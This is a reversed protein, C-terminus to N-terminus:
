LWSLPMLHRSAQWRQALTGTWQDWEDLSIWHQQDVLKKQLFDRTRDGDLWHLHTDLMSAPFTLRSIWQGSQPHWITQCVQSLGELSTVHLEWVGTWPYPGLIIQYAGYAAPSHIMRIFKTFLPGHDRDVDFFPQLFLHDWLALARDPSSPIPNLLTPISM